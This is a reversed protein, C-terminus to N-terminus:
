IPGAGSCDSWRWTCAPAIATSSARSLIRGVPRDSRQGRAFAARCLRHLRRGRLDVALEQGTGEKTPTEDLSLVPEAPLQAALEDYAPRLADTAQNQLKVVWGTSCPQRLVTSLFLATRSKSQRFCGMLLATLAVLRPGAQGTPM